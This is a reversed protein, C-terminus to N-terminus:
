PLGCVRAASYTGTGSERMAHSVVTPTQKIM